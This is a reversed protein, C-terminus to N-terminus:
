GASPMQIKSKEVGQTNDYLNDEDAVSSPSCSTLAFSAVFLIAFTIKVLKM